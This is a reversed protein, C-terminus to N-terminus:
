VKIKSCVLSIALFFITLLLMECTKGIWHWVDTDAIIAYATYTMWGFITVIMCLMFRESWTKPLNILKKRKKVPAVSDGVQRRTSPMNM